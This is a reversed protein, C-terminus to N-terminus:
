GPEQMENAVNQICCVWCVQLEGEDVSKSGRTHGGLMEVRRAEPGVNEAVATHVTAQFVIRQQAAIKTKTDRKEKSM